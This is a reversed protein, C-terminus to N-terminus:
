RYKMSLCPSMERALIARPPWFRRLLLRLRRYPMGEVLGGRRSDARVARRPHKNQPLGIRRRGDGLAQRQACWRMRPGACRHRSSGRRCRPPSSKPSTSDENPPHRRPSRPRCRRGLSRPAATASLLPQPAASSFGRSLSGPRPRASPHLTRRGLSALHPCSWRRGGNSRADPVPYLRDISSGSVNGRRHIGAQTASM